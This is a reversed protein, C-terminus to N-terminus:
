DNSVLWALSAAIAEFTDGAFTDFEVVRIARPAAALVGRVDIEGRGLPQQKTIDGDLTGDKVHLLRVRDGYARLLAPTDAGGVAAWYTDIELVVSPALRDVFVDLAHRGDIRNALEWSHNHYGFELGRQAALESLENSRDALATVDDRTTWRDPIYPDIVTGIGLEAAADFVAEPRQADIVPAHGSPATVGAANMALRLEPTNNTFGYPEVHVFGLEALRAITGAMDTAMSERVSYLQISRATM